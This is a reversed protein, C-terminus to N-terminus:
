KSRKSAKVAARVPDVEGDRLALRRREGHLAARAEAETLGCRRVLEAVWGAAIREREGPGKRRLSRFGALVGDVPELPGAEVHAAPAAGGEGGAVAVASRWTGPRVVPRGEREGVELREAAAESAQAPAATENAVPRVAERAQPPLAKAVLEDGGEHPLASGDPRLGLASCLLAGALVGPRVEVGALRSREAAERELAAQVAPVLYITLPVKKDKPTTAM